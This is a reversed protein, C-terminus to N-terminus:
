AMCWYRSHSSVVTAFMRSSSRDMLEAPNSRPPATAQTSTETGSDIVVGSPTTNRGLRSAVVLKSPEIAVVNL